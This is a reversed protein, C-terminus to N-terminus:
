KGVPRFFCIWIDQWCGNCTYLTLGDTNYGYNLSNGADDTMVNVKNHGTFSKVCIYEQIETGTDIYAKTGEICKKINNFNGQNWHDGLVMMDGFAFYNASDKADAVSQSVSNFIAVDIDLEPISFRGVMGPRAAIEDTISQKKNEMKQISVVPQEPIEITQHLEPAESLSNSILLLTIVARLFNLLYDM